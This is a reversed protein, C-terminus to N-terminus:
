SYEQFFPLPLRSPHERPFEKAGMPRWSGWQNLHYEELKLIETSAEIFSDEASTCLRRRSLLALNEPLKWQFSASSASSSGDIGHCIGPAGMAEAAETSAEVPLM